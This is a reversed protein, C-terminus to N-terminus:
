GVSPAVRPRVNFTQKNLPLFFFNILFFKKKKKKGFNQKASQGSILDFVTVRNDMTCQKVYHGVTSHSSRCKVLAVAGDFYTVYSEYILLLLLDDCHKCFQRLNQQRNTLFHKMFGSRIFGSYVSYTQKKVTKVPKRVYSATRVSKSFFILFFFNMKGRAIELIDFHRRNLGTKGLKAIVDWCAHILQINKTNNNGYNYILYM